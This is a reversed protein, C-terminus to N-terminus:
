LDICVKHDYMLKSIHTLNEYYEVSNPVRNFPRIIALSVCCTSLLTNCIFRHRCTACFIRGVVFPRHFNSTQTSIPGTLVPLVPCISIPTVNAQSGQPPLVLAHFMTKKVVLTSRSDYSNRCTIYRRYSECFNSTYAM